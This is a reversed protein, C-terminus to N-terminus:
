WIKIAKIVQIVKLIIHITITITYYSVLIGLYVLIFGRTNPPLIHSFWGLGNGVFQSVASNFTSVLNSFSPFLNVVLLNIPALIINAISKIFKLLVKFIAKGLSFWRM